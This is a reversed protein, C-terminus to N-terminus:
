ASPIGLWLGNPRVDAAPANEPPIRTMSLTPLHPFLMIVLQHISFATYPQGYAATKNNANFFVAMKNVNLCEHLMRTLLPIYFQELETKSITPLINQMANFVQKAEDSMHDPATGFIDVPQLMDISRKLKVMSVQHELMSEDTVPMSEVENLKGVANTMQGLLQGLQVDREERNDTPTKRRKFWNIVDQVTM